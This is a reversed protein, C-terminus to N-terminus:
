LPHIHYPKLTAGMRTLDEASHEHGRQHAEQPIQLYHFTAGRAIVAAALHVPLTGLVTDGPHIAEPDLHPLIHDIHWAHQQKIWDIAGQHRSIFWTTGTAPPPPRFKDLEDPHDLYIPLENQEGNRTAAIANLFEPTALYPITYPAKSSDSLIGKIEQRTCLTRPITIRHQASPTHRLQLNLTITERDLKQRQRQALYNALTFYLTTPLILANAISLAIDIFGAHNRYLTGYHWTALLLTAYLTIVGPLVLRQARATNM